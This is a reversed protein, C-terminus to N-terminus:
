TAATHLKYKCFLAYPLNLQETYSSHEYGFYAVAMDAIVKKTKKDTRILQLFDASPCVCVGRNGADEAVLLNLASFEEAM